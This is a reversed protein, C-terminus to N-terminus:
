STPIIHGDRDQALRGAALLADVQITVDIRSHGALRNYVPLETYRDVRESLSGVLVKAVGSRPLEGPLRNVCEMIADIVVTANEGALISIIEAGCAEITDAGLGAFTQLEAPTTPRKQALRRLTEDSFVMYEPQGLAAARAQRRRRLPEFPIDYPGAPLIPDAPVATASQRQERRLAEVVCRIESYDIEPPLLAKIPALFAASGAQEIAARIQGQRAAPVVANVDAQGDAILQALHSYVTGVTLGREAAIQEPTQGRALMDGTLFVTAGAAARAQARQAAAPRVPRLQVRIASRAELVRQGKPTLNLTPRGGGAQKLYGGDLLQGILGEIDTLHLAAFKGFNRAGKYPGMDKATSGKLLQALKGGGVGWELHALTDLVILAAREAQSEAPRAPGEDEVVEDKALCNDCCLAAEAPGSDGFHDLLTRRRCADTQAFDVMRALQDRKHDRRVAVQRAITQLASDSLPQPQARLRGYADDPLRKLAGAAQLQQLAVRAKIQTLGAANVVEDLSFGVNVVPPTFFSHVARLEPASPSDNEIFFEHLATDRAAYLMVARAPLGDRGARGAEQYYAELTSPLSYHLVLRVDPRDIGMGFANTAVVLPLDGSMFADQVATREAADLGAHYHRAQRACDARIFAAVEEADKRTGTYIIGAGELQSLFDRVLALKTAADRAAFVEFTLNPRNFGTILRAADPMGLLQVIDDQVRPTATATLALTLPPNFERRAEALHLYDPRFDHGWQSLCHAEDVVLLSLPVHKIAQRFALNRLREPAILLIRYEGAALARLRRSQELNDLSSNIFTAPINRRALSDIQDKMLAVLPSIVLATGPLLLASLQYILSKGSGTPMVVLADRGALVLDLAEEQGPRFAPFSFYQFLAAHKDM